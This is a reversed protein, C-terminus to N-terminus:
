LIGQLESLIGLSNQPIKQSVLLEVPKESYSHELIPSATDSPSSFLAKFKLASPLHLFVRQISQHDATCKTGHHETYHQVEAQSAAMVQERLIGKFRINGDQSVETLFM